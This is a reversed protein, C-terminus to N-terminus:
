RLAEIGHAALQAAAAATGEDGAPDRDFSLFVRAVKAAILADLLEEPLAKASYGTTVHRFGACWWSM